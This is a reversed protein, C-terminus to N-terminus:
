AGSSAGIHSQFTAQFHSAGSDSFDSGSANSVSSFIEVLEVVEVRAIQDNKTIESSSRQGDM